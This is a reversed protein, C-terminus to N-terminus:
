RAGGILSVHLQSATPDAKFEGKKLRLIPKYHPNDNLKSALAELDPQLATRIEDFFSHTDFFSPFVESGGLEMGLQDFVRDLIAHQWRQLCETPTADLYSDLVSVLQVAYPHRNTKAVLKKLERPSGRKSLFDGTNVGYEEFQKVVNRMAKLLTKKTVAGVEESSAGRRAVALVANWRQARPSALDLSENEAM